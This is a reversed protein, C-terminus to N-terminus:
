TIPKNKQNVKNITVFVDKPQRQSSSNSSPTNKSEEYSINLAQMVLALHQESKQLLMLVEQSGPNAKINEIEIAQIRTFEYMLRSTKKYFTLAQFYVDRPAINYVEFKEEHYFDEGMALGILDLKQELHSTFLFVDNPTVKKESCHAQLTHLSIFITIVLQPLWFRKLYAM